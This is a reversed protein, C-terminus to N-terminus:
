SDKRSWTHNGIVSKKSRMHIEDELVEKLTSARGTLEEVDECRYPQNIKRDREQSSAYPDWYLIFSSNGEYQKIMEVMTEKIEAKWAKELNYNWNGGTEVRNQPSTIMFLISEGVEVNDEFAICGIFDSGPGFSIDGDKGKHHLINYVTFESHKQIMIKKQKPNMTKNCILNGMKRMIRNM